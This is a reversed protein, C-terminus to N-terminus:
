GKGVKKGLHWKGEKRGAIAGIQVDRKMKKGGSAQFKDLEANLTTGSSPKSIEVKAGGAEAQKSMSWAARGGGAELEKRFSEHQARSDDGYTSTKPAAKPAAKKVAAPKAVSAAPKTVAPAAAAPAGRAGGRNTPRGGTGAGGRPTTTMSQEMQKARGTFWDTYDGIKTSLDFTENLVTGIAYGTTFATVPAGARGLVAKGPLVRGLVAKGATAVRGKLSSGAARAAMNAAAKEGAKRTIVRAAREQVGREVARGATAARGKVQVGARRVTAQQIAEGKTMIGQAVAGRLSKPNAVKRAERAANKASQANASLSPGKAGMMGKDPLGKAPAPANITPNKAYTRAPANKAKGLGKSVAASMKMFLLKKAM